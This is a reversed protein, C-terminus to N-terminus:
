KHARGCVILNLNMPMFVRYRTFFSLLEVAMTAADNPKGAEAGASFASYRVEQVMPKMRQSKM